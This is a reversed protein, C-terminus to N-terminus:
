AVAEELTFRYSGTDVPQHELVRFVCRRDGDQFRAERVVRVGLLRTLTSVTVSCLHPRRLAVNLYPCNREVLVYGRADKRVSTHPDEEFYIGKLAKIREPLSKGALKPEWEKVQQETLAALLKILAEQGLQDAVADVLSVALKDYNKAFLHEGEPTLAFSVAPRGADGTERLATRAVAGESELVQLWQRAGERTMGLREALEGATAAGERKLHQLVARRSDLPPRKAKKM